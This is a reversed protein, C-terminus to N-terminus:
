NAATNKGLAPLWPRRYRSRGSRRLHDSVARLARRRRNPGPGGLAFLEPSGDDKVDGLCYSVIDRRVVAGEPLPPLFFPFACTLALLIVPAIVKIQWAKM